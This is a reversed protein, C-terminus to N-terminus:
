PKRCKTLEKERALMRIRAKNYKRTLASQVGRSSPTLAWAAERKSEVPFGANLWAQFGGQLAWVHRYGQQLLKQALSASSGENPWTCYSVIPRNKPIRYLNEEWRDPPIRIAEPLATDSEAWANPNRVDILTFEEGADMRKKLEGVTIKPIDSM